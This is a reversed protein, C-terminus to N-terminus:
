CACSATATRAGLRVARARDPRRAAGALSREFMKDRPPAADSLLQEMLEDDYDALQELMHFRAENEREQCAPRCRSSRPRRTSATSSPASSRSTSSARRSATRGSRSRACCSRSPARRSCCRSRDRAGAHRLHRDQEPVPLASHRSGRAAEPHGAAGARAQPRARVRRHGRRLRHARARRRAPIRDLRPLRRLHLHRRPFEVDAINLEFREHRPRAGRALRRRRDDQRRRQGPRTVRAPARSSPKSFHRRAAFPLPRGTRHLPLPREWQSGIKPQQNAGNTGGKAPPARGCM